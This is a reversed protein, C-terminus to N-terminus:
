CEDRNKMRVYHLVSQLDEKLGLLEHREKELKARLLRAEEGEDEVARMQTELDKKKGNSIKRTDDLRKKMVKCEEMLDELQYNLAEAKELARHEDENVRRQRTEAKKQPTVINPAPRRTTGRKHHFMREAEIQRLRSKADQLNAMEEEYSDKLSAKTRNRHDTNANIQKEQEEYLEATRKSAEEFQERAIAVRQALNSVDISAWDMKEPVHKQSVEFWTQQLVSRQAEDELITLETAVEPDYDVVLQQVQKFQDRMRKEDGKVVTLEKRLAVVESMAQLREDLNENDEELQETARRYAGLQEDITRHDMKEWEEDSYEVDDEYPPYNQKENQPCSHRSVGASMQSSRRREAAAKAAAAKARAAALRAEMNAEDEYENPYEEYMTAM